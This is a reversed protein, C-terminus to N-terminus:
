NNGNKLLELQEEISHISAWFNSEAKIESKHICDLLNEWSEKKLKIEM